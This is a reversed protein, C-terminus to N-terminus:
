LIYKRTEYISSVNDVDARWFGFGCLAERLIVDDYILSM